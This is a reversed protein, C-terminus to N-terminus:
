LLEQLKKGNNQKCEPVQMSMTSCVEKLNSIYPSSILWSGSTLEDQCRTVALATLTKMIWQIVASGLWSSSYRLYPPYSCISRCTLVAIVGFLVQHGATPQDRVRQGTRGTQRWMTM